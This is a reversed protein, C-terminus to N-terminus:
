PYGFHGRMPRFVMWNINKWFFKQETVNELSFSSSQYWSWRMGIYVTLTIAMLVRAFYGFNKFNWFNWVATFDLINTTSRFSEPNIFLEGPCVQVGFILLIWSKLTKHNPQNRRFDGMFKLTLFLSSLNKLFSWKWLKKFLFTLCLLTFFYKFNASCSADLYLLLFWM